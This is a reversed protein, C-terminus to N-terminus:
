AGYSGTATTSAASAKEIPPVWEFRVRQRKGLGRVPRGGARHSKCRRSPFGGGCVSIGWFTEGCEACPASYTIMAGETGDRRIFRDIRLVLFPQEDMLLMHGVAISSADPMTARVYPPRRDEVENSM